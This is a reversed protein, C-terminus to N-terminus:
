QFEDLFTNFLLLKKTRPEQPEFIEMEEKSDKKPLNSNNNNNNNNNGTGQNKSMSSLENEATQNNIIDIFDKVLRKYMIGEEFVEQHYLSFQDETYNRYLEELIPLIVSWQNRDNFRSLFKKLGDNEKPFNNFWTVHNDVKPMICCTTYNYRKNVDTCHDECVMRGCSPHLFAGRQCERCARSENRYLECVECLDINGHVNLKDGSTGFYCLNCKMTNCKPCIKMCSTNYGEEIKGHGYFGCNVCPLRKRKQDKPVCGRCVPSMCLTGDVRTGMCLFGAEQYPECIAGENVCYEKLDAPRNKFPMFMNFYDKYLLNKLINGHNWVDVLNAVFMYMNFTGARKFYETPLPTVYDTSDIPLKSIEMKIKVSEIKTRFASTNSGHTEMRMDESKLISNLVFTLNEKVREARKQSSFYLTTMSGPIEKMPMSVFKIHYVDRRIKKTSDFIFDENPFIYPTWNRPKEQPNKSISNIATSKTKNKQSEELPKRM